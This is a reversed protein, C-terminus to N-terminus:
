EVEHVEEIRILPPIELLKFFIVLFQSLIKHFLEVVSQARVKESAKLTLNQLQGWFNTTTISHPVIELRHDYFSTM